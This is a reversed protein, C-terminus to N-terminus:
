VLNKVIYGCQTRNTLTNEIVKDLKVSIMVWESGM